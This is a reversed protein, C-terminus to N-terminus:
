EDSATQKDRFHARHGETAERIAEVVIEVLMEKM